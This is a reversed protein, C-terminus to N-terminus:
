CVAAAEAEAAGQEAGTRRKFPRLEVVEAAQLDNSSAPRKRPSAAASMTQLELLKQTPVVTSPTSATQSMQQWMELATQTRRLLLGMAPKCFPQNADDSSCHEEQQVSGGALEGREVDQGQHGGAAGGAPVTSGPLPLSSSRGSTGAEPGGGPAHSHMPPMVLKQILAEAEKVLRSMISTSSFPQQLVLPQFPKKLDTGTCKDHKKLIKMVAAYNLLSWHLLLVMEGHLEVLEAKLVQLEGPSSTANIQDTLSQMKIVCDEEKEIYFQNFRSLDENLTRLFEAEQASVDTQPQPAAAQQSPSATPTPNQQGTIRKLQKKLAKYRLFLNGMEPMEETTSKLLKGFKM